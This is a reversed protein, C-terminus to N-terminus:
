PELAKIRAALEDLAELVDVPSTTWDGSTTPTFTVDAADPTSASTEDIVSAVPDQGDVYQIVILSRGSLSPLGWESPLTLTHADADEVDLIAWGAHGYPVTADTVTTNGSMALTNVRGLTLSVSGSTGLEVVASSAAGGGGSGVGGAALMDLAEPVTDPVDAWDSPTEPTYGVPQIAPFHIEAERPAGDFSEVGTDTFTETAAPITDLLSQGWSGDTLSRYVRWSWGAPVNDVTITVNTSNQSTDYTPAFRLGSPPLGGDEFTVGDAAEVSAVLQYDVGGPSRRYVNWGDAGAPLDPLTLVARAVPNGTPILVAGIPGAPTELTDSGTWVSVRYLYTGPPLAGSATGWEVIPAEPVALPAPTTVSSQVSAVSETGTPDVHSYRYFITTEAPFGAGVTTPVLDLAPPDEPGEQPPPTGDHTHDALYKLLVDIVEINKETFAWDNLSLADGAGM